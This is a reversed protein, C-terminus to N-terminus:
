RQDRQENKIEGVRPLRVKPGNVKKRTVDLGSGSLLKSLASFRSEADPTVEVYLVPRWYLGEGAIGWQEVEDWVTSVLDDISRDTPGDFHLVHTPERGDNLIILHEAACVLTIPRTIPIADQAGGPLGWNRGRSEALSEANADVHAFQLSPQDEPPPDESGDPPSTGGSQQQATADASGSPPTPSDQGPAQSPGGGPAGASPGSITNGFAQSSRSGTSGNQLNEANRAAGPSPSGNASPGGGGSAGRTNAVNSNGHEINVGPALASSADFTAGPQGLSPGPDQSTAGNGSTAQNSGVSGDAHAGGTGLDLNDYPWAGEGTSSEGNLAAPSGQRGGAGASRLEDGHPTIHGGNQGGGFEHDPGGFGANTDDGGPGRLSPDNEDLEFSRSQRRSYRRPAMLALQRQMMRARDVARREVSALEADPPDFALEWDEGIFEYGFGSAWSKLAERAAYYALIGDPRVLLLPYPDGVDTHGAARREIFYEQAARLGAALPNGPGLPGQFDEETIRIGEPQLLIAEATCEIYLPRRRTENPGQFPVVAFKRNGGERSRRADELQETVDDLEAELRALTERMQEPAPDEPQAALAQIAAIIEALEQELRRSHEEVHALRRREEDLDEETKRRQERLRRNRLDLLERQAQIDEDEVPPAPKTAESAQVRAQRAILVLLLILAGMTCVLVALFPFLSVNTTTPRAARRRM